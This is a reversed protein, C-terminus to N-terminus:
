ALLELGQIRLAWRLLSNSFGQVDIVYGTAAFEVQKSGVGWRAM